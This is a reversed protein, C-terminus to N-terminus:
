FCILLNLFHVLEVARVILYQNPEFRFSQIVTSILEPKEHHPERGKVEEFLVDSSNRQKERGSGNFFDAFTFPSFQNLTFKATGIWDVKFLSSFSM